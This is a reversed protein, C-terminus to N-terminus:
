EIALTPLTSHQPKSMDVYFQSGHSAEVVLGNSPTTTCASVTAPNYAEVANATDVMIAVSGAALALAALYAIVARMPRTLRSIM